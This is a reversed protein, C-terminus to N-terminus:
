CRWNSLHCLRSESRRTSSARLPRRPRRLPRRPAGARLSASWASTHLGPSFTARVLCRGPRGSSSSSCSCSSSSTSFSSNLVSALPRPSIPSRASLRGSTLSSKSSDFSAAGTEAHPGSDLRCRPVPVLLPGPPSTALTPRFSAMAAMSGHKASAGMSSRRQLDSRPTSAEVLFPPLIPLCSAAGTMSGATANAGASSRSQLGGKLTAGDVLSPPATTRKPLMSTSVPKECAKVGPRSLRGDLPGRSRSPQGVPRATVGGGMGLTPVVAAEWPLLMVMLSAVDYAAMARRAAGRGPCRAPISPTRGGLRAPMMISFIPSASLM